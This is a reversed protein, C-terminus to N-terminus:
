LRLLATQALTVRGVRNLLIAFEDGGLRALTDGPRLCSELRRSVVMLLEDGILHGLSDNVLKFRDLDLYLVAFQDDRRQKLDSLRNGLEEVFATRNCLGTLADRLGASRFQERAMARETFDSLSGAIRIARRDSDRVAVGRCLFLRYTGDEHRLRHEVQLTHTEGSVHAAVADNLTAIDEAHVR